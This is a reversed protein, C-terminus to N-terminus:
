NELATATRQELLHRFIEDLQADMGADVTGMATDVQCFGSAVTSDPKLHLRESLLEKQLYEERGTTVLAYDDPNIRVTIEESESLGAIANQVVGALIARDQSIERTIVKRAVLIILNILEDEAERLVKERLDHITESSARLARFVGVLGREALNKGDQLGSNYSDRIRQNLEEETIEIVPSGIEEPEERSSDSWARFGDEETVIGMPVFGATRREVAPTPAVQGIQRFNFDSIDSGEQQVSKIIRSSSM